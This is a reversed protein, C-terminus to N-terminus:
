ELQLRTSVVALTAGSDELMYRIQSPSLTPYIPVLIAGAALVALDVSVWEPRSEAMLAVRGGATMGLATLGLSVDRVDEFFAKGTVSRIEGGRASGVVTAHQFRGMVHFPLDAITRVDPDM